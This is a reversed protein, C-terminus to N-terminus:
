RLERVAKGNVEIWGDPIATLKVGMAGTFDVPKRGHVAEKTIRWWKLQYLDTKM